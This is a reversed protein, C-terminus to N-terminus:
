HKAKKNLGLRSAVPKGASSDTTISVTVHPNLNPIAMEEIVQKIHQAEITAQGMAYLEVEQLFTCNDITNQGTVTQSEIHVMIEGKENHVVKPALTVKYHITGTIYRLLQKLNKLDESDPQQLARSLEKVAFAM